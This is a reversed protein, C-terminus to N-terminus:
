YPRTPESIHILSLTYIRNVGMAGSAGHGRRNSRSKCLVHGQWRRHFPSLGVYRRSDSTRRPIPLPVAGDIVAVRHLREPGVSM